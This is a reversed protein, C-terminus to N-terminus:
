HRLILWACAAIALAVAIAVAGILRGRPIRVDVPADTWDDAIDGMLGQFETDETFGIAVCHGQSAHRGVEEDSMCLYVNRRCTACFRIAPDDGEALGEWQKPCQFRFKWDCDLIDM